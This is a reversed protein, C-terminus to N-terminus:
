ALARWFFSLTAALSAAAQSSCGAKLCAHWKGLTSCVLMATSGRRAHQQGREHTRRPPQLCNHSRANAGSFVAQPGTQLFFYSFYGQRCEQRRIMRFLGPVARFLVPSAEKRWPIRDPRIGQRKVGGHPVGDQPVDISAGPPAHGRGRDRCSFM